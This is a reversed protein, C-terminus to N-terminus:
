SQPAGIGLRALGNAQPVPRYEVHAENGGGVLTGVQGPFANVAGYQFYQDRSGGSMRVTAGGLVNDGDGPVYAVEPGGGANGGALRPSGPDAAGCAALSLALASALLSNRIMM